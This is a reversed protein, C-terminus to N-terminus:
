TDKSSMANKRLSQAVLGPCPCYCWNIKHCEDKVVFVSNDSVFNGITWRRCSKECDVGVLSVRPRDVDIITVKESGCTLNSFERTEVATESDTFSAERLRRM